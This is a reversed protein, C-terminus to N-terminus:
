HTVSVKRTIIKGNDTICRVIYIGNNWSSCNITSSTGTPTSKQMLKGLCDYIEISQLGESRVAFVLNAPSPFITIPYKDLSAIGVSSVTFHHPDAAGIYPHKQVRESGDKAFIYYDVTGQNLPFPITGQWTKGSTHTMPTSQWNTSDIRYYIRVSDAILSQGSYATIDAQITYSSQHPQIGLTPYHRILLMGLDAIEHTRCHLADTNEWPADYIEDIGVVTYGPMANRYATLAANDAQNGTVPVFVHDNLILSNSYPVVDNMATPTYVRYVQYNNGWPTTATAFFNAVNEYNQYRSDSTSVQDILVKDVDLFKGWCDIHEIYEGMPDQIFYYNNIGLYDHAISQLSTATESPNETVTLTTSAATGYGDSMYNGGTHIMNMAYCPINLHSAVYQPVADDNARPRNYPFDVIGFQDNGDIIFVPGYDRTWYSDTNAIIFDVHNMNVGHSQYQTTVYSQETSSAVLTTVTVLQSMQAILTYSIGFPYRVLVGQMPQFEAINIVPGTPATTPQFNLGIEAKRSQEYANMAHTIPHGDLANLSQATAGFRCFIFLAVILFPTKKM